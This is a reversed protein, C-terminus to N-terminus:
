QFESPISSNSYNMMDEFTSNEVSDIDCFDNEFGFPQCMHDHNVFDLSISNKDSLIVSENEVM